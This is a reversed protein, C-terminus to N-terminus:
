RGELQPSRPLSAISASATVLTSKGVKEEVESVDFFSFPITLSCLDTWATVSQRVGLLNKVRLSRKACQVRDHRVALSPM